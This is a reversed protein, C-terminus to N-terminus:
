LKMECLQCGRLFYKCSSYLACVKREFKIKLCLQTTIWMTNKEGIALFALRDSYIIFSPSAFETISNGMYRVCGSLRSDELYYTIAEFAM